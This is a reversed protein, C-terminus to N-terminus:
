ECDTHVSACPRPGEVRLERKDRRVRRKVCRLTADAERLCRLERQLAIRTSDHTCLGDLATPPADVLDPNEAGVPAHARNTDVGVGPADELKELRVGHAYEDDFIILHQVARQRLLQLAGTVGDISGLVPAFPEVVRGLVWQIQGDDIESQRGYRAHVEDLAQTCLALIVGDEHERGAIAPLVLDLGQFEAGVVVDDLRKM